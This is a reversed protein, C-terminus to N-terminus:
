FPYGSYPCRNVGRLMGGIKKPTIDIFAQPPRGGRALHKSLRRGTQGAGWVILADRDKLPGEVLYHAKARLFNEM